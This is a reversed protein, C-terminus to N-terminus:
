PACRGEASSTATIPWCRRMSTQRAGTRTMWATTNTTSCCWRHALAAGGHGIVRHAWSALERPVWRSQVAEPAMVALAIEQAAASNREPLPRGQEALAAHILEDADAELESAHVSVGTLAALSEGDLGAVLADCAARVVAELGRESVLWLAAERRLSEVAEVGNM